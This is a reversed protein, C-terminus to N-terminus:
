IRSASRMAEDAQARAGEMRLQEGYGPGKYAPHPLPQGPQNIGASWNAFAQKPDYGPMGPMGITPGSFPNMQLRAIYEDAIRNGEYPLLNPPEQKPQEPQPAAVPAQAPMQPLPPPMEPTMAEAGQQEVLAAIQELVPDPQQGPHGPGPPQELMAPDVMPPQSMFPQPQGLLGLGGPPQQQGGLLGFPQNM